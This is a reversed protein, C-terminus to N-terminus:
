ESLRTVLEIAKALEEPTNYFHTSFRIGGGRHACIVQRELLARWLTRSDASRHRFTVIGAHREPHRPTLLELDPDAEIYGILQRANALVQGAVRDMGIEQLLSLSANLGHIGVMNPSGCEFRRASRAPTWDLTDYNGCDEVMHWGYQTLRLRERLEPHCYFLAVGEPGLMWKHGDAMVFDAKIAQVDFPIAGLSQIADVCLFIDQRACFAGLMQLDMRLGSAYQVASVSILRTHEDALSTIAAEPVKESGLEATRVEVGRPRLSEWVIRNSPFEQDTIILNDGTTWNLGYAVVSLAESTNKLLAIDAISSANILTRLRGRLETEVEIWRPYHLAGWRANEEAFSKVAEATRRPWPAVGAHNLYIVSRDLAFENHM